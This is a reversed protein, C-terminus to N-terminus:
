CVVHNNNSFMCFGNLIQRGTQATQTQNSWLWATAFSYCITVFSVITQDVRM